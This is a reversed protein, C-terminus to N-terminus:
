KINHKRASIMGIYHKDRHPATQTHTSQQPGKKGARRGTRPSEEGTEEDENM